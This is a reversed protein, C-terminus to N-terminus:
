FFPILTIGGEQVSGNVRENFDLCASALEVAPLGVSYRGQARHLTVVWSQAIDGDAGFDHDGIPDDDQQNLNLYAWGFDFPVDVPVDGFFYRGTAFPYCPVRQPFDFRDDSFCVEVADESENFVLIETQGLPFWSPGGGCWDGEEGRAVPTGDLATTDRWIVIDTGDFTGGNLYRSGWITGLPERNDRGDSPAPLYRGYFTYDTLAEGTEPDEAPIQAANRRGDAEVHVLSDGQAFDNASDVLFWDGWLRNENNAVGAGGDAFYAKGAVGTDAPGLAFSCESVSDITVYGRAVHDGHDFGVCADLSAVVGGTHGSRLRDLASGVIVPNVFGPFIQDCFPFGQEGAAAPDTDDWHRNGLTHDGGCPSVTGCVRSTQGPDSAADATVPVNGDFVDRLNVSVVDYGTLYVDFALTPFAWDTWFVVHALAPDGSANNISFVTNVGDPHDLDVEFYPLLLTAAPVAGLECTGAASPGGAPLLLLIALTPVLRTM